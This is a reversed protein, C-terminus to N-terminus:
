KFVRATKVHWQNVNDFRNSPTTIFTASFGGLNKSAAYFYKPSFLFVAPKHDHIIKQIKGLDQNRSQDDFNQRVSELLADMTKDNFISLNLGPHFRQSSHWFSFIDPNNNLINGFIVMQYNRTKISQSIVESPKLVVPNLKVGIAQWEDKILNVTDTLFQASPVIIDFELSVTNKQVM